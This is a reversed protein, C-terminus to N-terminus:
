RSQKKIGIVLGSFFGHVPCLSKTSVALYFSEFLYGLLLWVVSLKTWRKTKRKKYYSITEVIKRNIKLDITSRNIPSCLHTLKAFPNIYLNEGLKEVVRTSFDIDELMHFSNSTDFPVQLFVDRRWASVGGSIMNSKIMKNYNQNNLSIARYVDERIDKFIGRHFLKSIFLYLRGRDLTNIIVGSCGVMDSNNNFGFIIEEIYNPELIVDDELFLIIDGYANEVGVNKANVLGDILPNYIYNIDYFGMKVLYDNVLNSAELTDSQDVVILQTPCITQNIISIIANLLDNPRNKTPLIVSTVLSENLLKDSKNKKSM